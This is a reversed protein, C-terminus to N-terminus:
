EPIQANASVVTKFGKAKVKKKNRYKHILDERKEKRQRQGFVCRAFGASRPFAAPNRM